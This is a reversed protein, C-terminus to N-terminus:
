RIRRSRFVPCFDAKMGVFVGEEFAERIEIEAVKGAATLAVKRSDCKTSSAIM